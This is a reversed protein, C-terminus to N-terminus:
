GRSCRFHQHRVRSHQTRWLNMAEHHDYAYWAAHKRFLVYIRYQLYSEIINQIITENNNYPHRMTKLKWYSAVVNSKRLTPIKNHSQLPRRIKNKTGFAQKGSGAHDSVNGARKTAHNM